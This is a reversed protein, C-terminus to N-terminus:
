KSPEVKSLLDKMRGQLAEGNPTAQKWEALVPDIKQRWSREQEPTLTVIAHASGQAEVKERGLRNRRDWFAGFERSLEEGSSDLLVKQVNAPLGEFRKRSMFIMGQGSGLPVEVHFKAVEDLKFISIGTWQLLVGDAVGRNVVEYIDSIPLSVPAAGLSRAIDGQLKAFTAVKLGNLTDLSGPRKAFHLGAQPFAVLALPIIDNYDSEIAGSKYLRWYAVSGEAAKDVSFPLGMVSSLKFKGGVAGQLGWSIQIVDDLVREYFNTHNAITPGDRMDIRVFGKGAENVRGAWRQFVEINIPDSPSLTTGFALRTEQARAATIQAATIALGLSLSALLLRQTGFM